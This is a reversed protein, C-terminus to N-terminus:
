LRIEKNKMTDNWNCEPEAPCAFCARSMKDGKYLLFELPAPDSRLKRHYRIASLIEQQEEDSFIFEPPMDELIQKAIQASAIEHPIGEEYQQGKGIDHLLAAAYILDQCIGLNMKLDLIYAIRAVDLLHDMQHRCFIRNKELKELKQYSSVYLPHDCIFSLRRTDSFSLSPKTMLM